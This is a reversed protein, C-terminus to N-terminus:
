LPENITEKLVDILSTVATSDGFIIAIIVLTCVAITVVLKSTM